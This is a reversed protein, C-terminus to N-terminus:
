VVKSYKVWSNWVNFVPKNLQKAYELCNFTGGSSSGDYLALIQVCNDVMWENRKQLKAPHYIDREVGKAAYEPLRDIYIIQKTQFLISEWRERDEQKWKADQQAFPVAAVLPISLKIAALAVATDWGLAMGSIIETPELKQISVTALSLLRSFVEQNRGGLKDLRHGTAAIM